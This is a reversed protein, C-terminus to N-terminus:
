LLRILAKMNPCVVQVCVLCSLGGLQGFSHGLLGCGAAELSCVFHGAVIDGTEFMGVVPM